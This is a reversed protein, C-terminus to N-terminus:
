TVAVVVEYVLFSSVATGMLKETLQTLSYYCQAFFGTKKESIAVQDTATVNMEEFQFLPEENYFGAWWGESWYEHEITFTEFPNSTDQCNNQAMEYGERWTDDLDPNHVHLSLKTYCLLEADNM